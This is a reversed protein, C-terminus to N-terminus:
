VLFQSDISLLLLFVPLYLLSSFLLQRAIADTKKISFIMSHGLFLLGILSVGIFYIDGTLGLFYLSWTAPIMVAAFFITQVSMWFAGESGPLIRIGGLKYDKRYLWGIAYFHPHQWLFMVLFLLWAVLDLQERALSWGIMPPIAGPIAGVTTNLWTVRKLPTYVWVYSFGIFATLLTPLFGSFLSLGFVGIGMFILGGFLATSPSVLGRPLPRFRTRPMKRDVEIELYQNLIFSGSATLGSFLLTMVLKFPAVLVFGTALFYGFLITVWIMVVMRLKSMALFASGWRLVAASVTQQRDLKEVPTAEYAWDRQRKTTTLQSNM